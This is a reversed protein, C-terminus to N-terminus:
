AAAKMDQFWKRQLIPLDYQTIIEVLKVARKGQIRTIFGNKLKSPLAKVRNARIPPVIEDVLARSWQILALPGFLQVALPHGDQWVVSGDGDIMGALFALRNDGTLHPDQFRSGKDPEVGFNDRLADLHAEVRYMDVRWAGYGHNSVWRVPYKFGIFEAFKIVHAKDSEKLQLTIRSQLRESTRRISGDTQLVGAWYCSRLGITSFASM